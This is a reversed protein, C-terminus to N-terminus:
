LKTLRSSISVIISRIDYLEVQEFLNYVRNEAALELGPSIDLSSMPNTEPDDLLSQKRGNRSTKSTLSQMEKQVDTTTDFRREKIASKANLKPNSERKIITKASKSRKVNTINTSSMSRGQEEVAKDEPLDDIESTKGIQPESM